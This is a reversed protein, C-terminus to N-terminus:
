TVTTALREIGDVILEIGLTFEGEHDVPETALTKAVNPFRELGALRRREIVDEIPVQASGVQALAHGVVFGVAINLYRRADPASVGLDTLENLTGEVLEITSSGTVPRMAVLPAANPHRLLANRFAVGYATARSRFGEIAPEIAIEEYILDTVGDLIDTKGSVHKYLSPAEVGLRTALRRMTLDELGVEDILELAAEIVRRRNLGQRPM